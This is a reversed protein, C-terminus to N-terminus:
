SPKNEKRLNGATKSEQSALIVQDICLFGTRLM